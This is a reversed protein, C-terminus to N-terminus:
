SSCRRNSANWSSRWPILRARCRASVGWALLLRNRYSAFFPCKVPVRADHIGNHHSWGGVTEAAAHDSRLQRPAASEGRARAGARRCLHVALEADAFGAVVQNDMEVAFDAAADPNEYRSRVEPDVFLCLHPDDIQIVSVGENLLLEIKRGSFDACM